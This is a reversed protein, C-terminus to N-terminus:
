VGSRKGLGDPRVPFFNPMLDRILGKLFIRSEAKFLEAANARM